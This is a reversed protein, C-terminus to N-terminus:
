FSRRSRPKRARSKMWYTVGSVAVLAMVALSGTSAPKQKVAQAAQLAAVYPKKLGPLTLLAKGLSQGEKVPAVTPEPTVIKVELNALDDDCVLATPVDQPELPVTPKVGGLVKEHGLTQDASILPRLNYRAYAWDVLTQQDERWHDSHFVVTILKRGERDNYGVFCHGAPNTFGTKIGQNSPDTTLFDNRNKVLVDKTNISRTLTYKATGVTERFRDNQMAVRAIKAMDAATTMHYPNNLGHPTVFFSHTCGIEKARKNMLDAFAQDSGSIAVATAHAGDNASRLMLARLLDRSSIQEGTKLHASSGRVTEVDTPATIIQDPRTNEALLLGTLIKTTSAPYRPVDINKGWLVRGSDADVVIASLADVKPGPTPGVEKDYPVLAIMAAVLVSM